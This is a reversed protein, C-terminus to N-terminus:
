SPNQGGQKNVVGRKQSSRKSRPHWNSYGIIHWCKEKTHGKIGCVVCKIESHKTMLTSSEVLFQTENLVQRQLEEQQRMSCVYEASPLPNLLLIQSRQSAFMEDFGNL